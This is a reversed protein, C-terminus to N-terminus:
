TRTAAPYAATDVPPGFVMMWPISNRAPSSLVVRPTLEESGVRTSRHRNLAIESATASMPAGSDSTTGHSNTSHPIPTRAIPPAEGVTHPQMKRPPLIPTNAISPAGYMRSLTKESWSVPMRITTPSPPSTDMTRFLTKRPQLPGAIASSGPLDDR